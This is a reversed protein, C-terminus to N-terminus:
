SPVAVFVHELELNLELVLDPELKLEVVIEPELETILELDVVTELDQETM